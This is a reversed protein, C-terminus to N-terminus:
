ALEEKTTFFMFKMESYQVLSVVSGFRRLGWILTHWIAGVCFGRVSMFGLMTLIDAEAKTASLEMLANAEGHATCLM